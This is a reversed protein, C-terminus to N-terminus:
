YAPNSEDEHGGGRLNRVEADNSNGALTANLSEM